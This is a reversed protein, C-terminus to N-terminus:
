EFPLSVPLLQFLVELYDQLLYDQLLCFARGLYHLQWYRARSSGLRWFQSVTIDAAQMAGALTDAELLLHLSLWFDTGFLLTSSYCFGLCRSVTHSSPLPGLSSCSPPISKVTLM